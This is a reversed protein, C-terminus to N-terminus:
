VYKKNLRDRLAIYDIAKSYKRLEEDTTRNLMLFTVEEKFISINDHHYECLPLICFKENLQRGQWTMNHHWEIKGECNEDSLCCTKYYKDAAMEDRLAKPIPRM